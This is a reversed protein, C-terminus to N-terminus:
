FDEDFGELDEGFSDLEDMNQVGDRVLHERRQLYADRIFIYKDGSILTEADLLSARTDVISLAAVGLRAQDDSIAELGSVEWTLPLSLTDSVTSPGLLPLVLYPGQSIGWYSFTQGFSEPDNKPLGGMSAVDFLGVIGFTSNVLFRGSDNGAKAWKWQLINNITNTIEGLNNFFNSVGREVLDPAIYRYGKAVPKLFWADLRDNIAFSVRNIKELPDRNHPKEQSDTNHPTSACGMVLACIVAICSNLVRNKM